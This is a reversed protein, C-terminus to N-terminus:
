GMRWLGPARRVLDATAERTYQQLGPSDLAPSVGSSYTMVGVRIARVRAMEIVTALMAVNRDREALAVGVEPHSASRAFWPLLNPFGTTAIDHMGHLDLFNLRAHALLDLYERWYDPDHFWWTAEDATKATLFLNAGRVALAP